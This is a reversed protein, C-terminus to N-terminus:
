RSLAELLAVVGAPGDVAVDAVEAVEPVEASVVAVSWARTGNGRLQAVAEFAPLDGVDDGILAHVVGRASVHLLPGAADGARQGGVLEVLRQAVGAQLVDLDALRM